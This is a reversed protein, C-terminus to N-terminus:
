VSPEAQESHTDNPAEEVSKLLLYSKYFPCTEIIQDPCPRKIEELPTGELLKPMDCSYCWETIFNQIAAETTQITPRRFVFSM